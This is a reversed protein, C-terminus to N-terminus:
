EYPNRSQIQIKESLHLQCFPVECMQSYNLSMRRLIKEEPM